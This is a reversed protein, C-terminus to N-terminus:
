GNTGGKDIKVQKAVEINFKELLAKRYTDDAIEDFSFFYSCGARLKLHYGGDEIKVIEVDKAECELQYHEPMCFSYMNNLYDVSRKVYEGFTVMDNGKREERSTDM